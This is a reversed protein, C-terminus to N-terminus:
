IRPEITYCVATLAQVDYLKRIPDRALFTKPEVRQDYLPAPGLASLAATAPPGQFLKSIRDRFGAYAALNSVEDGNNAALIVVDIVYWKFVLNEFSAQEVREPRVAPCVVVQPLPDLLPDEAKPLKRVNVPLPAHNLTLNLATIDSRIAGLLDNLVAM